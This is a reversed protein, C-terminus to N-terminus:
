RETAAGLPVYLFAYGRSAELRSTLRHSALAALMEDTPTQIGFQIM